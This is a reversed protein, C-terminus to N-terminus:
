AKKYRTKLVQLQHAITANMEHGPIEIKVGGLISEDVQGTVSVEKAGTADKVLKQVAAETTATLTQATTVVAEIYGADALHTAVDRLITDIEATRRHQLLYAGLQTALVDLKEGAVLQDAIYRSVVRRSLPRAM